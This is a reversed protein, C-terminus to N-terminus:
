DYHIYLLIYGLLGVLLSIKWKTKMELYIDSWSNIQEKTTLSYLMLPSKPYFYYFLLKVIYVICIFKCFRLKDKKYKILYYIGLILGLIMGIAYITIREYIIKNYIKKQNEDLLNYFKIFIDKEKQLNMFISSILFLVALYCFNIEM